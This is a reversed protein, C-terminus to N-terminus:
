RFKIIKLKIKILIGDRCFFLIASGCKEFIPEKMKLLSRHVNSQVFYAARGSRNTFEVIPKTLAKGFKM